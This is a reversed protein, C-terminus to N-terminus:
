DKIYCKIEKPKVNVQLPTQKLKYTRFGDLIQFRIMVKIAWYNYFGFKM